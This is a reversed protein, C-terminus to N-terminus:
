AAAEQLAPLTFSITTGRGPQSEAWIRGGHREVIKKAIALGIGTGPYEERSHLRKFIVFVRDTYKPDFGVGNDSVSFVWEGSQRSASIRVEPQTAGHFKIANGVLNQFLQVLQAEDGVVKPLRDSEVVAGCEKIAVEFNTLTQEVVQNLDTVVMECGRSGVRSFTLLDRVLSQMRSAGDVAYNIYRQGTEDLDGEYRESLLQMYSSVMRLPEQLDHSAVYAFQELDANSRALDEARKRLEDQSRAREVARGLQVGIQTLVNLFEADHSRSEESFLELVGVVESGVRIPVLAASGRRTLVPGDASPPTSLDPIWVSEGTTFVKGVAAAGAQEATAGGEEPPFAADLRWSPGAESRNPERNVMYALGSFWRTERCVTELAAEIAVHPGGPANASATVQQLVRLYTNKRQEAQFLEARALALDALVGLSRLTQAEETGFFPTFPSAHVVIDGSGLEVALGTGTESGGAGPARPAPAKSGAAPALHSRVIAGSSDHWVAADGGVLACMSPLIIDAIDQPTLAKMLELEAARLAAEEQRRWALRVLRPPAFGLLFLPATMLALFVVAFAVPTAEQDTTGLSSVLLALALGVTGLSLTRMRRRAVGPQGAGGQWLRVAVVSSLLVWNVMFLALYAAFQPPLSQNPEPFDGLLLSWVAVAGTLGAATLDLWRPQRVFTSMFRYLFYPFLALILILIKGSWVVAPNDLNADEPFFAGVSVVAALSGLTAALWGAAPGPHRRWRDVALLGLLGFAAYEVLQLAEFLENLTRGESKRGDNGQKQDYPSRNRLLTSFRGDGKVGDIRSKRLLFLM